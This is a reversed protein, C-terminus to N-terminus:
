FLRNPLWTALGPFAIVIALAVLQLAVFPVIGRYIDRASVERSAVGALYFLAFGFPPTLFSTQINLAVLVGLWIPDLGMGLLIPGVIPIIIITIEVFDLFFGMFFMAAMVSLLAGWQGGPLSSLLERVTEEGGLGRFVLAFLTAGLLTAFIMATITMTSEAVQGLVGSRWLQVLAALIGFALVLVLGFAVLMALRDGMPVFERGIRMDFLAGLLALGLAAFGAFPALRAALGGARRAALLTAGVAGVAAAETPTAIGGLISGLVAVILVVPPVLVAVLERSRVRGLEEVPIAPACRPDLWARVLQYLIYLGVLVLGPVMAGAFLQGVSVTEVTFKGQALQAQQYAASLVEGLIVMVTSPPIIQGLTGAACISGSAFSKDYGRRLMAPLAMLGMTVVTAGVIGTSAALLAGVVSVSVALGGRVRGFLRGMAELLEEAIRSRELMMGMFVFLPIAILVESTMTGFIRQALARLLFPDLVGLLIGLGGFVIATGTLIFVVPVGTLILGCLALFMLADLAGSLWVPSM